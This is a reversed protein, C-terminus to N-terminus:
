WVHEDYLCTFSENFHTINLRSAPSSKMILLKM